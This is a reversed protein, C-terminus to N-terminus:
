FLKVINVHNANNARTYYTVSVPKCLATLTELDLKTVFYQQARHMYIAGEYLEFFARSYPISDLKLGGRATPGSTVDILTFSLPDILRLSVHRQPHPLAPPCKLYIYHSDHHSIGEDILLPEIQRQNYPELYDYEGLYEQARALACHGLLLAVM